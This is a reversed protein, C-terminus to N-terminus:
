FGRVREGGQELVQEVWEGMHTDLMEMIQQRTHLDCGIIRM